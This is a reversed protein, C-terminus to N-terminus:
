KVSETGAITTRHMMRGSDAPYPVVRHLACTNDWIVCDGEEWEHSYTFAPQAAWELLRGLLARGEAPIKGVVQDATYGIILSQTGDSRTWVLPHEQKLAVRSADLMEPSAFERVAATVTHVVRLDRLAAKDKEPLSEYAARTSSFETQGGIHSVKRASLITAKPPPIDVTLGDMHWFFTGFIYEPEVHAGNNLTVQFIPATGRGPIQSAISVRQGLADTLALQEDDTLHMRPFVLVTREELLRLLEEATNLDGLVSKDLIVKAGIAAKLNEFTFSM